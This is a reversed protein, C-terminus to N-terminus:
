TFWPSSVLTLAGRARYEKSTTWMCGKKMIVFGKGAAPGLWNVPMGPNISKGGEM